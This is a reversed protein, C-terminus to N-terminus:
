SMDGYLQDKKCKVYEFKEFWLSMLYAVGATKREHSPEYSHLICRMHRTAMRQDIGEKMVINKIEISNFFMDNVMQIWKKVEVRECQFDEPIDEWLPLLKDIGGNESKPGFAVDMDLLEQPKDWKSM